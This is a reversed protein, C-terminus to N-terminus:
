LTNFLNPNNEYRVIFENINDGIHAPTIIIELMTGGYLIPIQNYPVFLHRFLIENLGYYEMASYTPDKTEDNLLYAYEFEEDWIWDDPFIKCSESIAAELAPISDISIKLENIQESLPEIMYFIEKCEESHLQESLKQLRELNVTKNKMM